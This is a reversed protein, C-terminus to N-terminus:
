KKMINIDEAVYAEVLLDKNIEAEELLRGTTSGIKKKKLDEIILNVIMSGFGKEELFDSFVTDKSRTRDTQINKNIYDGEIVSVLYAAKDRIESEPRSLVYRLASECKYIGYYAVLRDAAKASIGTEEVMRDAIENGAFLNQPREEPSFIKGELSAKKDNSIILTFHIAVISRGAKVKEYDIHYGTKKNIQEVPKQICNVIFESNLKYKLPGNKGNMKFYGRLDEISIEREIIDKSSIYKNNRKELLLELIRVAYQSSVKYVDELLFNSYGLKMLQLKPMVDKNFIVKLIGNEYRFTSFVNMLEWNNKDIYIEIGSKSNLEECTERLQTYRKANGYLEMIESAKVIITRSEEDSYDDVSDSLNIRSLALYLLREEEIKFNRKSSSIGKPVRVISNTKKDKTM